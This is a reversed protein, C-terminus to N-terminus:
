PEQANSEAKPRSYVACRFGHWQSPLTKQSVWACQRRGSGVQGGSSAQVWLLMASGMDLGVSLALSEDEGDIGAESLDSQWLWVEGTWLLQGDRMLQKPAVHATAGACLAWFIWACLVLSPSAQSQAQWAVLGTGSLTLVAGWLAPGWVFRGVPFAVPPANHM